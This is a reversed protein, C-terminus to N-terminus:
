IIPQQLKKVSRSVQTVLRTKITDMPNMVIVGGAAALAGLIFNEYSNPVRRKVIVEVPDSTSQIASNRVNPVVALTPNAVDEFIRKLQQFFM